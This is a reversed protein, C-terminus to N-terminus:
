IGRACNEVYHELLQYEGAVVQVRLAQTPRQDVHGPQLAEVHLGVADRHDVLGGQGPLEPPVDAPQVEWLVGEGAGALQQPKPPWNGESSPTWKPGQM